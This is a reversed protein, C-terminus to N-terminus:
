LINAPSLKESLELEELTNILISKAREFETTDQYKAFVCLEDAANSIMEIETHNVTIQVLRRNENWKNRIHEAQLATNNEASPLPLQELDSILEQSLSCIYFYNFTIACMMIAFLCIATYFAKM